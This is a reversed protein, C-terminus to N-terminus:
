NVSQKKSLFDKLLNEIDRLKENMANIEDKMSEPREMNYQFHTDTVMRNEHMSDVLERKTFKAKVAMIGDQLFNIIWSILGTFSFGICMGLTGGVSGIMSIADYILYEEYVTKLKMSSFHYVFAFDDDTINTKLLNNVFSKELDMDEGFYVVTKCLKVYCDSDSGGAIVKFYSEIVKKENVKCTPMSPLSYPSCKSSSVKDNAAMIRGVCEYFSEQSCKSALYNSQYAELSIGKIKDTNIVYKLSKGNVWSSQTVGYANKESTIFIKASSPLDKKNTTENFYIIVTTRDKTLMMDKFPISSLKYCYGLFMTKIKSLHVTEGFITSNKNIQATEGFIESNENIKLFRTTSVYGIGDPNKAQIYYQIIFDLGYEYSTNRSYPKIFCITITPLEKIPAEYQTFSTHHSFFKDIVRWMFLASLGCLGFFLIWELLKLYKAQPNGM